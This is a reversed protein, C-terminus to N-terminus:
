NVNFRRRRFRNKWIGITSNSGQCNTIPKFIYDMTFLINSDRIFTDLNKTQKIELRWFFCYYILYSFWFVFDVASLLTFCNNVELSFVLSLESWFSIGMLPSFFRYSCECCYADICIPARAPKKIFILIAM